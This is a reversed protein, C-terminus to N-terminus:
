AMEVEGSWDNITVDILAALKDRPVGPYVHVPKWTKDKIHKGGVTHGFTVNCLDSDDKSTEILVWGNFKPGEVTFKVGDYPGAGVSFFADPLWPEGARMSSLGSSGNPLVSLAMADLAKKARFGLKVMSNAM